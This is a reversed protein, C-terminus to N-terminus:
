SKKFKWPVKFKHLKAPHDKNDKHNSVYYRTDPMISPLHCHVRSIWTPKIHISKMVGIYYGPVIIWKIPGCHSHNSDTISVYRSLIVIFNQHCCWRHKNSAADKCKRYVCYTLQKPFNVFPSHLKFFGSCYYIVVHLLVLYKM